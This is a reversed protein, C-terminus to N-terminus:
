RLKAVGVVAWAKNNNETANCFTAVLVQRFFFVGLRSFDGFGNGLWLKIINWWRVTFFVVDCSTTSDHLALAESARVALFPWVSVMQNQIQSQRTTGRAFCVFHFFRFCVGFCSRSVKWVRKMEDRLSLFHYPAKLPWVPKTNRVLHKDGSRRAPM